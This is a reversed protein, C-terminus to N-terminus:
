RMISEVRQVPAAGAPTPAIATVASAAALMSGTVWRRVRRATM